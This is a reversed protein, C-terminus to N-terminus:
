ELFQFLNIYMDALEECCSCEKTEPWTRHLGRIPIHSQARCPSRAVNRYHSGVESKGKRYVETFASPRKEGM